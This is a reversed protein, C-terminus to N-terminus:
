LVRAVLGNAQLTLNSDAFIVTYSVLREPCRFFAFLSLPMLIRCCRVRYIAKLNDIGFGKFGQDASYHSPASLYFDGLHSRWMLLKWFFFWHQNWKEDGGFCIVLENRQAVSLTFVCTCCFWVFVAVHRLFSTPKNVFWRVFTYLHGVSKRGMRVAGTMEYSVSPHSCSNWLSGLFHTINLKCTRVRM